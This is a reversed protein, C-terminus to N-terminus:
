RVVSDKFARLLDVSSLVGVLTGNDDVVPLAGYRREVFVELASAVADSAKVTVPDPSMADSVTVRNDLTYPHVLNPEDVFDPRRLDRDSIIGALVGGKGLVPMHRIGRERMREFTQYAGDELNATVVDRSMYDSVKM